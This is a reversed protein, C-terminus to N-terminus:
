EKLNILEAHHTDMLTDMPRFIAGAAMTAIAMDWTLLPEEIDALMPTGTLYEGVLALDGGLFLTLLDLGALALV